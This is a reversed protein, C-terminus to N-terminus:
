KQEEAKAEEEAPKEESAAKEEPEQKTQRSFFMRQQQMPLACVRQQQCARLSLMM